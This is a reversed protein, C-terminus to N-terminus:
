AGFPARTQWGDRQYRVEVRHIRSLLFQEVIECPPHLAIPNIPRPGIVNFPAGRHDPHHKM